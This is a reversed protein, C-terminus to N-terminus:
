NGTSLDPDNQDTIDTLPNGCCPCTTLNNTKECEAICMSCKCHLGIYRADDCRSCAIEYEMCDTAILQKTCYIPRTNIWLLDDHIELTEYDYWMVGEQHYLGAIYDKHIGEKAWMICYNLIVIVM